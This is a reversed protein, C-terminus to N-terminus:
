SIVVYGTAPGANLVVINDLVNDVYNTQISVNALQYVGPSVQHYVQILPNNGYNTLFPAWPIDVEDQDTFTVLASQNSTTPSCELTCGISSKDVSGGIINVKICNVFSVMPITIPTCSGPADVKFVELTFENGPGSIFGDPFDHVNFSVGDTVKEATADFKNGNTDTLRVMYDGDPVSTNITVVSDYPVCKCLFDEYCSNCGM